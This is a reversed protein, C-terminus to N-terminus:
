RHAPGTHAARTAITQPATTFHLFFRETASARRRSLGVGIVLLAPIGRPFRGGPGTRWVSTVNETFLVGHLIGPYLRFFVLARWRIYFIFDCLAATKDFVEVCAIHLQTLRTRHEDVSIVRNRSYTM